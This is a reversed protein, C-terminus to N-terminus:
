QSSDHSSRWQPISYDSLTSLYRDITNPIHYTDLIDKLFALTRKKYKMKGVVVHFPMEDYHRSFHKAADLFMAHNLDQIDSFHELIEMFEIIRVNMEDNLDVKQHVFVLHNIIMRDQNMGQVYILRKKSIQTTLRHKNYLHYGVELHPKGKIINSILTDEDMFKTGYKTELPKYYLGKGARVLLSEKAMRGIVKYFNLENVHKELLKYIERTNFLTNKQQRDILDRVIAAQSM